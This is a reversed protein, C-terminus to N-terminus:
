LKTLNTFSYRGHNSMFSQGRDLITGFYKCVIQFVLQEFFLKNIHQKNQWNLHIQLTIAVADNTHLRQM